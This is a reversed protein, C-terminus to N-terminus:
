QKRACYFGGLLFLRLRKVVVFGLRTLHDELERLSFMADESHGWKFVRDWLRVAGGEPEELFIKGGPRLVRCSEEIVAQWNAVHHLIGFTVVADKSEDAVDRMNAADMVRFECDPVDDRGKALEIMEPMLDIGLYSKPELRALLTAGYGSGCGIELLDQHLDRLGLWRYLPYEVNRHFFRRIPGNM